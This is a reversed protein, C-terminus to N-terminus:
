DSDLMPTISLRSDQWNVMLICNIIIVKRLWLSLLVQDIVHYKQANECHNSTYFKNFQWEASM